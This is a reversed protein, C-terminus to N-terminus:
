WVYRIVGKGAYSRTVGSFEGEFTAATSWGNAWKVEASATTLAADRAPRAGNVVFSAGPLTQFTAQISRDTNYDHAWAARGRLTLVGGDILYTKDSRFGLESRSATVDRSAFALAFTNAGAVAREAYTPLYLSTAQAAAYPTLGIGLVPAVFRYGGELRGSLTNTNFQANFRDLGAVTVTRDTTVDQWGYALAASIYAPGVNHRLFAGAQFLDSRGTGGNAVSFSTGGGAMAFGAITSPSFRYDLGVASAALRSTATNSGLTANGDTTQVGGFGAAWISWRQEFAMRLPAKTYIAALADSPKRKGAYATAEDAYQAAGGQSAAGEDRGAIFPDTMLGLFQTAANFATQQTITATEGSIQTLNQAINGNFVSGFPGANTGQANLGTDIATGVARQNSNLGALQGLGSAFSLTVTNATYNLSGVIGTPSVVGGFRSNNLNAATLITYTTGLSFADPFSVRVTGGLSATGSVDTRGNGASSIQILYTAAATFVLNGQVTLTGTPNGPALVGGAIRTNGVTGNGSLTAGSNVTLQSASAISGAVVLQGENVNIPGGYTATGALTWSSGGIKNFISFGQYQPGITSVDFTASGVGGLQFTDNRQGVVTGVITSGPGLTLANGAGAFQIAIGNTGTISGANFVSSPGTTFNMGIPASISGTNSIQGSGANVGQFLSTISGANNLTLNGDNRIGAGAGSIIGSALNTVDGANTFVVAANSGSITGANVITGTTAFVGANPGSITGSNTLSVNAGAFIGNTNSTISGANFVVANAAASVGAANGFITGSVANNVFASGGANIATLFATISGFNDVTADGVSLVAANSNNGGSIVGTARNIINATTGANITKNLSTVSGANDLVISGGAIIASDSGNLTGASTNTVSANTGASLAYTASSITGSNFVLGTGTTVIGSADGSITGSNNIDASAARVGTTSSTISGANNLVLTGGATVGVGNAFITGTARNVIAASTGASVASNAATISGANDLTVKGGALIAANPGYLIGTSANTVDADTGIALANTSSSITGSNFILGTGTTVVGNAPGSITGSNTIDVSAANVGITSSTVSGANGLRLAGSTTIGYVNGFITGTGSNTVALPGIASVGNLFASVTGSNDVTNGSGIAIGTSLNGTGIVSAGTLVNITLSNQDGTGYGNNGNQNTTAGSCTVTTGAAPLGPSAPPACQAFAASTSFMFVAPFFFTTLGTHSRFTTIRNSSM